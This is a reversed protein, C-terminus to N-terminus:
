AQHEPPLLADDPDCAACRCGDTHGAPRADGADSFRTSREDFTLRVAGTPGNNQKAVNVEVIGTPKYDRKKSAYYDARYLLLVTRACQELEGSERLDSLQPRKDSRKDVDRNLQALGLVTVGLEHAMAKLARVNEAVIEERKMGGRPARLLQVYDVVVLALKRGESSLKLQARRCKGWLELVTPAPTDDIWMPLAALERAATTFRTWEGPSLAGVRARHVELGARACTMRLMLTEQLTELSAVHVGAGAAAVNCAVACAIATKGMGPRAGVILLEDHLGAITADLSPFGSPRAGSASQAAAATVEALMREAVADVRSGQESAGLEDVLRELQAGVDRIITAEDASDAEVRARLAIAQTWLARRVALDRVRRAHTLLHSLGLCPVTNLLETLYAMGGVQALRNTAKLESAISVVDLAERRAELARMAEYIRRHAESRFHEPRLFAIEVLAAPEIMLYALAAQEASEDYTRVEYADPGDHRGGDVVRLHERDAM